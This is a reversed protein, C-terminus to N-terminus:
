EEKKQSVLIRGSVSHTINDWMHTILYPLGVDLEAWRGFSEGFSLPDHFDDVFYAHFPIALGCVLAVCLGHVIQSSAIELAFAYFLVIRFCHLPAAFCRLKPM